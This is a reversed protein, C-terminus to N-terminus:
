MTSQGPTSRGAGGSALLRELLGIQEDLRQNATDRIWQINTPPEFASIPVKPEDGVIAPRRLLAKDMAYWFQPILIPAFGMMRATVADTTAANNGAIISGVHRPTGDLPGTGEMAVVADLVTLQPTIISALDAIVRATGAYHLRTKPFGYVSGPVCGFLNKMGLTVASRHHTKMKALSVVFDAETITRPLMLERFAAPRPTEVRSLDDLNLDVFPVGVDALVKAIGTRALLYETDREHGSGDAVCIWSDTPTVTSLQTLIAELMLPHTTVHDDAPRAEILGIKVVISRASALRAKVDLLDFTRAVADSLNERGYDPCAIRSVAATSAFDLNLLPRLTDATGPYDLGVTKAALANEDLALLEEFSGVLNRM